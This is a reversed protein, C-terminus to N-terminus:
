LSSISIKLFEKGFPKPTRFSSKQLIPHGFSVWVGQQSLSIKHKYMEPESPSPQSSPSYSSSSSSSNPTPPPSSSPSTSPSSSSSSRSKSSSRRSAGGGFFRVMRMYASSSSSVLCFFHACYQFFYEQVYQLNETIQSLKIIVNKLPESHGM